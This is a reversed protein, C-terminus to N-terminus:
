KRKRGHLLFLLVLIAITPLTTPPSIPIEVGQYEGVTFGSSTPEWREDGIASTNIEIQVLGSVDPNIHTDVRNIGPNRYYRSLEEGNNVLRFQVVEDGYGEFMIGEDLGEPTNLILDYGPPNQDHENFIWTTEYDPPNAAAALGMCAVLTFLIMLSFIFKQFGMGIKMIM